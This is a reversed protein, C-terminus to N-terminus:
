LSPLISYDVNESWKIKDISFRSFFSKSVIVLYSCFWLWYHVAATNMMSQFFLFVLYGNYRWWFFHGVVLCFRYKYQKHQISIKFSYCKSRVIHILERYLGFNSLWGIDNFQIKDRQNSLPNWIYIREPYIKSLAQSAGYCCCQVTIVKERFKFENRKTSTKTNFYLFSTMVDHCFRVFISCINLFM